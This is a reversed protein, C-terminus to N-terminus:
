GPPERRILRGLETRDPVDLKSCVRYVHGEVTRVSLSLQEAIDKNTLGAAILEAIERERPSVPLPQALLSSTALATIARYGSSM